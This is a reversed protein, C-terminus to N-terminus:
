FPCRFIDRTFIHPPIDYGLWPLFIGLSALEFHQGHEWCGKLGSVPFASVTLVSTPDRVRDDGSVLTRFNVDGSLETVTVVFM